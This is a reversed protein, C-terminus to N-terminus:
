AAEAAAPTAAAHTLLKVIDEPVISDTSPGLGAGGASGPAVFPRPDGRAAKARASEIEGLAKRRATEIEALAQKSDGPRPAAAGGSESM